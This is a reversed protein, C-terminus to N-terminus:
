ASGAMRAVGRQHWARHALSSKAKKRREVPVGRWGSAAVGAAQRRVGAAVGRGGAGGPMSCAIGSGGCRWIRQREIEGEPRRLRVHCISSM